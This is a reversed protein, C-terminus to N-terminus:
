HWTTAHHFPHRAHSVSLLAMHVDEGCCCQWLDGRMWVSLSYCTYLWSSWGSEIHCCLLQGACTGAPRLLSAAFPLTPQRAGKGVGVVLCVCAEVFVLCNVQLQPRHGYVCWGGGACTGAQSWVTRRLAPRTLSGGGGGGGGGRPRCPHHPPLWVSWLAGPLRGTHLPLLATVPCTYISHTLSHTPPPSSMMDPRGACLVCTL